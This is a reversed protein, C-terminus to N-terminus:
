GTGIATANVAFRFDEEDYKSNLITTETTIPSNTISIM